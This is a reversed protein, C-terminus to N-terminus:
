KSRQPSAFGFPVWEFSDKAIERVHGLGPYSLHCGYVLSKTESLKKLTKIRSSVGLEFDWDAATGWEPRTFLVADYHILDAIAILQEGGSSITSVVHGKTHGPVIQMTIMDLITEGDEVMQLQPKVVSLINRILPIMKEIMPDDKLVSKSYDPTEKAWSEYEVRSIYVKANPYVSKNNVDVLGGAHDLHAHTIVVDTIQEPNLGILKLNEPLWGGNEGLLSGQGSDILILHGEKKLLLVNIGLELGSDTIFNKELLESVQESPALPAIFPQVSEFPVYGDTLVTAEINGIKFQQFGRGNINGAFLNVSVLFLTFTFLTILKKM